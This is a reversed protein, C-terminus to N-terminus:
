SIGRLVLRVAYECDDPTIPRDYILVPLCVSLTLTDITRGTDDIRDKGTERAALM